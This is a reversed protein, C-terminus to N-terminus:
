RIVFLDLNQTLDSGAEAKVVRPEARDMEAEDPMQYEFTAMVRYDGPALGRFQYQGRVDARATRLDGLRKHQAMDWPELFVMAGVAVDQGSTVTGHLTGPASALTFFVPNYGGGVTIENWVDARKRESREYAPGSFRSVYYGPMPALTLEWRGPGLFARYGDIRLTRAPGSGALDMRRALVQVAAATVVKNAEDRIFFPTDAVPYLALRMDTRDRDMAFQTYAGLMGSRSDTEAFLEYPGPALNDFHFEASTVTTERGMDSVLTVTVAQRPTVIVSGSLSLLAGALARVNANDTLEDLRADVPQAEEVTASQKSFTPLYGGDELQKAASRVLYRGPPLGAVRYMGRDDTTAHGVLQPPQTDRYAVVNTDPIGVDNEDVVTGAIAAFRKMRIELLVPTSEEVVIPQSASRFEKQGYEVPAFGARAASILYTGAPLALFEFNGNLNTRVTLTPGPSGPVPALTVRTRALARGTMNEVVAGRISAAQLASAALALLLLRRM